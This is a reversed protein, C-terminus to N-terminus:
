ATIDFSSTRTQNAATPNAEGWAHVMARMRLVVEEPVQEVVDGSEADVKKYVLTNAANDFEVKRDIEAEKPLTTKSSKGNGGTRRPDGRNPDANADAQPRPQEVAATEAVAARVPLDTRVAEPSAAPARPVPGASGTLVPRVNGIEM